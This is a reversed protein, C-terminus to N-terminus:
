EMSATLNINNWQLQDGQSRKTLPSSAETTEVVSVLYDQGLHLTKAEAREIKAGSSPNQVQGQQGTKKTLM